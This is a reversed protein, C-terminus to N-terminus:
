LAVCGIRSLYPALYAASSLRMSSVLYAAASSVRADQEAHRKARKLKRHDRAHVCPLAVRLRHLPDVEHADHKRARCQDDIVSIM